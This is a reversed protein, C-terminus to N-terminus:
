KEEVKTAGENSTAKGYGTLTGHEEWYDFRKSVENYTDQTISPKNSGMLGGAAEFGKEVANRLLAIKSEDGGSLAMAMDMIRTAVANVGWPGDESINAKAEEPTVNYLSLDLLKASDEGKAIKALDVQKGLMNTLMKNFSAMQQEQIARLQDGSLKKVDSYGQSALSDTSASISVTDKNEKVPTDKAAEEPNTTATAAAAATAANTQTSKNYLDWYNNNNVGQIAM